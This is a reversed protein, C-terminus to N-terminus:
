FTKMENFDNLHINFILNTIYIYTEELLKLLLVGDTKKFYPLTSEKWRGVQLQGVKVSM